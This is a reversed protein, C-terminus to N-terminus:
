SVNLSGRVSGCRDAGLGMELRFGVDGALRTRARLSVTGSDAGPRPSAMSRRIRNLARCSPVASARDALSLASDTWRRWRSKVRSPASTGPVECAGKKGREMPTKGLMRQQRGRRVPEAQDGAVQLLCAGTGGEVAGLRAHRGM